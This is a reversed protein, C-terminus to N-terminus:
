QEKGEFGMSFAHGRLRGSELLAELETKGFLFLKASQRRIRGLSIRFFPAPMPRRITTGAQFTTM